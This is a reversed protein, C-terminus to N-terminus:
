PWRPRLDTDAYGTGFLGDNGNTGVITLGAPPPPPPPPPVPEQPEPLDPPDQPDNIRRKM